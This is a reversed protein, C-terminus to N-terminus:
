HHTGPASWVVIGKKLMTAPGHAQRTAWQVWWHRRQTGCSKPEAMFEKNPVDEEQKATSNATEMSSMIDQDSLRNRVPLNYDYEPRGM